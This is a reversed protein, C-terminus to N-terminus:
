QHIIPHHSIFCALGPLAAPQGGLPGRGQM